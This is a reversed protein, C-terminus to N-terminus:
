NFTNDINHLQEVEVLEIRYEIMKKIIFRWENIILIDGEKPIRDCRSLLLGAVSAVHDCIEALNHTCLARQLAHLDTSGKVLWSRDSILKIEPTEDEDPFEGAIAELIDLPTILGQIVGFENSVIVMSGKARRLETLLNLVNLTEPVVIPLNESAYTEVPKGQAVSVMLDKARVIGILQDLEGNCVPFMNHPTNTLISYLERISKQSNLWTIENRPTMISRLSRSALSLVGTIMHREEEAFHTKLPFILAKKSVPNWKISSGGGMLKMIIEATRERMSTTSQNKISNCYAIQNFFEILISFGIAVYLYGKPIYFGMGEAMLSLGIILLFSLCLVVVTQHSNVFNILLKSALLMIVVAIVVSIIMVSLYDVTGVATIVADISFIADLVVIQIVVVWFSAYERNLNRNHVKYELQRHLETTAKFLLFIGGFLLILDRISFSFSVIKFLPKTLTTIWSVLSLLIIRMILALTLGIICVHERQNKPLKDVLIAIFVLNDVSLIVELVVLTFLGAWVSIDTLFEM